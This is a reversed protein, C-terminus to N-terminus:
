NDITWGCFWEGAKRTKPDECYRQVEELTLGRRLTKPRKKLYPAYFKVIKYKVGRADNRGAM